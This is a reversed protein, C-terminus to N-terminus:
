SRGWCPLHDWDVGSATGWYERGEPFGEFNGVPYRIWSPGHRNFTVIDARELTSLELENSLKVTTITKGQEIWETRIVPDLSNTAACVVDSGRVVQEATEVPRVEINLAASWTRAFRERNAPTPSYVKVLEFSRALCNAQIAASAQWGSGILGLVKANKKALYKTGLAGTAAVRFKQLYGDHIIALPECTASSYLKVFGCFKDSPVGPVQVARRQGGVFPYHMYTSDVRNCVVNWKLISASMSTYVHYVPDTTGPIEEKNRPTLIRFMPGNVARGHALEKHAQELADMCEAMTLVQEVDHNNLFLPM